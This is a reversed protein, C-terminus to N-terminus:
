ADALLGTETDEFIKRSTFAEFAGAETLLAFRDSSDDGFQLSVQDAAVGIVIVSNDGDTYTLTEANWNEIDGSAFWLTVTGSELQEVTDAGWNDCFTFVDNGGGGHMSDNGIGGAIVDAGSAGVIRDNGDDGFLLSDGKTTWIVDDGDGGRITLGDGVYEFRQSTMDVIDGGAGARIERIKYLRSTHEAIEEPLDTYVDDVFVADGNDADTLCLVNPDSSGFFLNRIRGKGDAIVIEHTGSWDNVSGAHIALSVLGEMGWTGDQEAFFMDDSCDENSQVVKAGAPDNDSVFADGVAWEESGESRVRWQYTGAPLELLDVATGQTVIRITHDFDDTSYEVVYQEAGTPDWSVRDKTGVLNTPVPVPVVVSLTLASDDLNLTCDADGVKITEGVALTGLDSGSANAVSITGSFDAAGGALFYVGREPSDAVTLSYLPTGRIASLDNLLAEAGASAQTLDFGIVANNGASVEAGSEFRVMGTLKGGDYLFLGGGAEVSAGKVTGGSMVCMAAASGVTKSTMSMGSSLLKNGSGYYVGSYQKVFSVNAGAAIEVIGECPTWTVNTAVGGSSVVLRGGSKVTAIAVVGGDEIEMRGGFNKVNTLYAGSSVVIRGGDYMSANQGIGNVNMQGGSSVVTTMAMGSDKVDLVGGSLITVSNTTAGALVDASGYVSTRRLEGNNSVHLIGGAMVVASTATADAYIVQVGGSKIVSKHAIGGNRVEYLGGDEVTVEEAYGEEELVTATGGSSVTCNYLIGGGSVVAVGGEALTINDAEGESEIELRGAQIVELDQVPTGPAATVIGSSVISM